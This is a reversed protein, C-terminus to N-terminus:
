EHNNGEMVQGDKTKYVKVEKGFRWKSSTKGPEVEKLDKMMNCLSTSMFDSEFLIYAEPISAEIPSGWELKGHHAAICHTMLAVAVDWDSGDNCCGKAKLEDYVRNVEIIGTMIHTQLGSSDSLSTLGSVLDVEYESTKGIDHIAACSLLLAKNISGKGYMTEFADCTASALEIVEATHRLLGGLQNHHSGARGAPFSSVKDWNKSVLEFAIRGYPTTYYKTCVNKIVEVCYQLNDVWDAFEQPPTNNRCINYIICSYGTQSKEYPRVDIAAEYVGGNTIMEIQEESVGFIRAEIKLGKDNMNFIMYKTVKDRQLRIDVDSVMFKAYVRNNINDKFNVSSLKVYEMEEGQGELIM